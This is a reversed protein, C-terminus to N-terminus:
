TERAQVAPGQRLASLRQRRSCVFGDRRKRWSRYLVDSISHTSWSVLASGVTKYGDDRTVAAWSVSITSGTSSAVRSIVNGPQQLGGPTNALKSAAPARCYGPYVASDHAPAWRKVARAWRHASTMVGARAVRALQAGSLRRRAPSIAVCASRSSISFFKSTQLASAPSVSFHV